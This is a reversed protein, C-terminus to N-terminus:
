LSDSIGLPRESFSICSPTHFSEVCVYSMREVVTSEGFLVKVAFTVCKESKAGITGVCDLAEEALVAVVPAPPLPEPPPPPPPPPLVLEPMVVVPLVVVPVLAIIM